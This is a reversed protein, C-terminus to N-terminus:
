CGLYKIDFTGTIFDVAFEGYVDGDFISYIIKQGTPSDAEITTVVSHIVLNEPITVTRIRQDFVPTAENMVRVSVSAESSQPIEGPFLLM